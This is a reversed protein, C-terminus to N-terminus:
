TIIIKFINTKKNFTTVLDSTCLIPNIDSFFSFAERCTVTYLSHTCWCQLDSTVSDGVSVGTWDTREILVIQIFLRGASQLLLAQSENIYTSTGIRNVPVVTIQIKFYEPFISLHNRWIFM